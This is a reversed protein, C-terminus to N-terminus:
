DQEPLLDPLLKHLEKTADSVEAATAYRKGLAVDQLFDVLEGARSKRKPRRTKHKASQVKSAV